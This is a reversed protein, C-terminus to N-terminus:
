DGAEDEQPEGGVWLQLKEPELHEGKGVDGGEDAVDGENHHYAM